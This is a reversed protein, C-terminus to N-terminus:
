TMSGVSDCVQVEILDAIQRNIRQIEGEADLIQERLKEKRQEYEASKENRQQEIADIQKQNSDSLNQIRAQERATKKKMFEHYEQTEDQTQNVQSPDNPASRSAPTFLPHPLHSAM